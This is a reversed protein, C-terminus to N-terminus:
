SLEKDFAIAAGNLSPSGSPSQAASTASTSSSSPIAKTLWLTIAIAEFLAFIALPGAYKKM